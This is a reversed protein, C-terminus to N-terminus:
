FSVDPPMMNILKILILQGCHTLHVALNPPRAVIQLPRHGGAGGPGMASGGSSKVTHVFSDRSLPLPILKAKRTSLECTSSTHILGTSTAAPPTAYVSLVDTANVSGSM